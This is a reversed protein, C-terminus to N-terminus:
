FTVIRPNNPYTQKTQLVFNYQWGDIGMLAFCGSEPSKQDFPTIRITAHSSLIFFIFRYTQSCCFKTKLTNTSRDEDKSLTLTERIHSCIGILPYILLMNAWISPDRQYFFPRMRCLWFNPLWRRFGFFIINDFCSAIAQLTTWWYQLGNGVHKPKSSM